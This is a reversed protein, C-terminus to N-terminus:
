GALLHEFFRRVLNLLLHINGFAELFWFAHYEPLFFYWVIFVWTIM